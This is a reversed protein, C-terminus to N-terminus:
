EAWEFLVVANGDPDLLKARRYGEASLKVEADATLRRLEEALDEVEFLVMGRGAPTRVRLAVRGGCVEFLAFGNPEDVQAPPMQLLRSYWGVARPFDSVALETMYLKM